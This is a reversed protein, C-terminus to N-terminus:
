GAAMESLARRTFVSAMHRRWGPDGQIAEQPRTRKHVLAAIADIAAEDLPKGLFADLGKIPKPQPNAAGVVIELSTPAPGDFTGIVAVGIQPFDIAGRMRLKQYRGKFGAAPKPIRVRTLLEGKELKLHDMGNFRYLDRMGLEREGGPGLLTISADLALLVPVTDASQAAVCTKPGDIVHCWTGEKKLCYGLAQRWFHTQNYFLCRTDLLINGGLTGMRRIQPGAVLGAAEALPPLLARVLPERSLADLTVGADILLHDGADTVGGKPLGALGIVHAPTFLRHKINPLLDTGGAVYMAGGGANNDHWAAVADAAARPAHYQFEPMRLM